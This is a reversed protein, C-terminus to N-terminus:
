NLLDLNIYSFDRLGTLIFQATQTAERMGKINAALFVREFSFIYRKSSFSGCQKELLTQTNKETHMYKKGRKRTSKAFIGSEFRVNIKLPRIDCM